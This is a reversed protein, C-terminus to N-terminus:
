SQGQSLALPRSLLSLPSDDPDRGRDHLNGSDVLFCFGCLRAGHWWETKGSTEATDEVEEELTGEQQTSTHM